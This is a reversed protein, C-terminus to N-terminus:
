VIMYELQTVRMGQGSIIVKRICSSCIRYIRVSDTRMDISRRCYERIRRLALDDIDCEFVSKQTNLGFEKLFEHLRTRTRNDSIDYTILTIM